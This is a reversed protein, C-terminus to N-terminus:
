GCDGKLMERCDEIDLDMSGCVEGPGPLDCEELDDQQIGFVTREFAVANFEGSVFVKLTVPSGDAPEDFSVLTVRHGSGKLRYLKWPKFKEAAAKVSDPRDALWDSWERLISEDPDFLNAMM